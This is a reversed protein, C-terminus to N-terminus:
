ENKEEMLYNNIENIEYCICELFHIAERYIVEKKIKNKNKDFMMLDEWKKFSYLISSFIKTEKAEIGPYVIYFHFINNLQVIRNSTIAFLISLEEKSVDIKNNLEDILLKILAIKEDIRGDVDLTLYKSYNDSFTLYLRSIDILENMIRCISIQYNIKWDDRNKRQILKEILFVSLYIGIVTSPISALFNIFYDDLGNIYKAIGISIVFFIASILVVRKSIVM